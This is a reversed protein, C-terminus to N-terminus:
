PGKSILFVTFATSVVACVLNLLFHHDAYVWWNWTAAGANLLLAVVWLIV